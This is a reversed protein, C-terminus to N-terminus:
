EPKQKRQEKEMLKKIKKDEWDRGLFGKIGFVSFAHSVLGIGWGLLPWYFWLQEPMSFYNILFLVLNIVIFITLHTYFGKLEGVREKAKQYLENNEM